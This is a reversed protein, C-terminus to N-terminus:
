WTPEVGSNGLVSPKVSGRQQEDEEKIMKKDINFIGIVYKCKNIVHKHTFMIYTWTLKSM